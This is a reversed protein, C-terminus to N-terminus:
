QLGQQGVVAVGPVQLGVAGVQAQDGVLGRRHVGLRQQQLMVGAQRQRRRWLRLGSNSRLFRLAPSRRQQWDTRTQMLPLAYISKLIVPKGTACNTGMNPKASGLRAAWPTMRHM